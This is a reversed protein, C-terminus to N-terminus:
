PMQKKTILLYGRIIMESPGFVAGFDQQTPKNALNYLHFICFIDFVESDHRSFSDLWRRYTDPFRGRLDGQHSTYFRVMPGVKWNIIGEMCNFEVGELQYVM